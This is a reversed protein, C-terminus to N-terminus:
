WGRSASMSSFNSAAQVVQPKPPFLMSLVPVEKGKDAARKALFLGVGILGVGILINKNM